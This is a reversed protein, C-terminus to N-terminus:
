EKLARRGCFAGPSRKTSEEHMSQSVHLHIAGAVKTREPLAEATEDCGVPGASRRLAACAMTDHGVPDMRVSDGMTGSAFSAAELHGCIIASFIRSKM